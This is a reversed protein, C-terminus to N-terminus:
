YFDIKRVDQGRNHSSILTGAEFKGKIVSGAGVVCNDGLETGRLIVVNAGIWVNNGIYVPSKKYCSGRKNNPIKYDHDHDVIVVNPGFLCDNGIIIKEMCTVTCGQNFFSTGIVLVGCEVRFSVNKRTFISNSLSLEGKIAIETSPHINQILDAQFKIPHFLKIICMRIFNYGLVCLKRFNQNKLKEIVKGM